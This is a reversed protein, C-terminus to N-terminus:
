VEDCIPSDAGDIVVIAEAVVASWRNGRLEGALPSDPQLKLEDLKHEVQM